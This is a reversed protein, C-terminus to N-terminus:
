NAYTPEDDSFDLEAAWKSIWSNHLSEFSEIAEEVTKIRRLDIEIYRGHKVAYDEKINDHEFQKKFADEERQFYPVEKYHQQGMVECFLKESPVYIDYPLYRGTEPNKVIKYETITDPYTKKCYEKLGRAVKSDNQHVACENCGKGARFNSWDTKQEGHIPCLYRLKGFAGHYEDKTSLLTYGRKKFEESIMDFDAYQRKAVEETACKRCGAGRSFNNWLMEMEGHIPCLYRLSNKYSTIEFEKTLLKYGRAEFAEKVNKYKIPTKKTVPREKAACIRCGSGAVVNDATTFYERGCKNCRVM